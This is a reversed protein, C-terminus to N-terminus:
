RQANERHAYHGNYQHPLSLYYRLLIRHDMHKLGTKPTSRTTIRKPVHSQPEVERGRGEKEGRTGIHTSSTPTLIKEWPSLRSENVQRELAKTKLKGPSGLAASSQVPPWVDFWGDDSADCRVDGHFADGRFVDSWDYRM